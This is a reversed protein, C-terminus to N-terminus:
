GSSRTPRRPRGGRYPASTQTNTFIGRIQGAIAPIRYVGAIGGSNGVMFLSRGSLYCGINVDFRSRLALMRGDADLALEADIHVDRGHDDSLFSERRESIWRVPRGLRRAAWLVLVDDPYVGSKM